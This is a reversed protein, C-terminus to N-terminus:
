HFRKPDYEFDILGDRYDIRIRLMRLMNFGLFGSVETGFSESINTTDFSVTDQNKQRLNAFQITFENALFVNKVAGSIGKIQVGEESSV